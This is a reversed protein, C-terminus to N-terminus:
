RSSTRRRVARAPRRRLRRLVHPRGRQLGGEGRGPAGDEEAPERDGDGQAPQQDELGRQQARHAGRADARDDDRHDHRQGEDGRQDHEGAGAHQPRARHAPQRQDAPRHPREAVHRGGLARERLQAAHGLPVRRQGTQTTRATRSTDARGTSRISMTLEAAPCRGFPWSCRSSNSSSCRSKLKAETGGIVTSAADGTSPTSPRTRAMSAVGPTIRTSGGRWCVSPRRM